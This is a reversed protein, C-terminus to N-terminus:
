KWFIKYGGGWREGRGKGGGERERRERERKKQLMEKFLMLLM